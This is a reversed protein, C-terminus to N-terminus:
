IEYNTIFLCCLTSQALAILSLVGVGLNGMLVDEADMSADDRVCIRAMWAVM